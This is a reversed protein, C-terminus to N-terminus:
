MQERTCKEFDDYKMCHICYYTSVYREYKLTTTIDMACSYHIFPFINNRERAVAKKWSEANKKGWGFFMKCLLTDIQWKLTYTQLQVLCCSSMKEMSQQSPTKKKNKMQIRKGDYFYPWCYCSFFSTFLHSALPRFFCFRIACLCMKIDPM